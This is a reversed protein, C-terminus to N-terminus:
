IIRWVLKITDIQLVVSNNHLNIENLDTFKRAINKKKEFVFM